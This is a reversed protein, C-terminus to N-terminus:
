VNEDCLIAVSMGIRLARDTEYLNRLMTPLKVVLSLIFYSDGDMPKTYQLQLGGYNTGQKTQPIWIEYCLVTLLM